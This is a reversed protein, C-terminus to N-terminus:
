RVKIFLVAMILTIMAQLSAFRVLVQSNSWGVKHRLHDHLPFRINRFIQIKFFRLLALKVLGTGGNVLLVGLVIFIMVPNGSKIVLIGVLLGVARSGADGMLIESPYANLWLYGAVCGAMSFAMIAWNSGDGYHPLLLYASIVDHGLVVYLIVGLSVLALLSLTGSLGDVGDTCNVTNIAVWIMVSAVPIFIIPQVTIVNKTFPFWIQTEQMMCLLFASVVAIVLDVFGKLYESWPEKNRDDLFGCSAALVMCILIGVYQLDFPVTFFCIAAFILIFIGGAGTPKGRSEESQFAFPKGRDSPLVRKFVPLLQWTLIWCSFLSVATLFSYSQLLRFPGFYRSLVGGLLYLM